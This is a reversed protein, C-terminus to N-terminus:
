KDDDDTSGDDSTESDSYDRKAFPMCAYCQNRCDVWCEPCYSFNCGPTPCPVFEVMKKKEVDGCVLCTKKSRQFCKVLFALRPFTQAFASLISSDRSLQFKKAEKLVKKRLHKLFGKRKKLLENYMFLIRKKERKRYFFSCIVRRLRLGYAQFLMLVWVLVYVLYIRVVHMIPLPTGYPLCEFNTSVTDVSHKQNFARLFLRVIHSMFGKGAVKVEIHHIGQQRYTVHSNKEIIDMVEYLVKASVIILASVMCRMIIMFTGKSLKKKESKMLKMTKPYVVQGREFKKLPLLRRKKQYMRRADIHRFYPTIYMNDFQFDSLYRKNYKYSSIFVLIFTFALTRKLLTLFFETLKQRKSFEHMAGKRMEEAMTYDVDEPTHVMKYQMNVDFNQDMNDMTDDATVYTEGFGPEMVDMSDCEMGLAGPVVRVIQCFFTLRLPLCLYYGIIPIYGVCDDWLSLMKNRCSSVAQNWIDECRMELKKRYQKEIKEPRDRATEPNNKEEIKKMRNKGRRGRTDKDVKRMRMEMEEEELENEKFEKKLPKYAFELDGIVRKLHAGQEQFDKAVSMIPRTKLDMKTTSHNIALETACVLARTVEQGNIMINHVPGTILFVIAYAAVFSRGKKGFFTPVLLWTICRVQVSMAYGSAMGLGLVGGLLEQLNKPLALPELVAKYLMYAIFAGVPFGLVTKISNYEEPSSNIVNMLKDIVLYFCCLIGGRRRRRRYKRRRYKTMYEEYTMMKKKVIKEIEVETQNKEAM